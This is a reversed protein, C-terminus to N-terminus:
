PLVQAVAPTLEILAQGWVSVRTTDTRKQREIFKLLLAVIDKLLIM